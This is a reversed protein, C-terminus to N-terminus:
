KKGICYLNKNTRLYLRGDAIAPSSNYTGREGLTNTALLEYEPKAAVVFMKGNRALYYIKGDALVPSAYVDSSGPVREEYAIEGSDAKACYAIGRVDHM